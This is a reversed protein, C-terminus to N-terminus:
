RYICPAESCDEITCNYIKLGTTYTSPPTVWDIESYANIGSKDFGKINVDHITFNSRYRTYIARASAYSTTTITMNSISQSGNIVSSSVAYICGDSYSSAAYSYNVITAAKSTGQISVRASLNCRSSENFTGSLLYIIDGPTTANSGAYSLTRWADDPATGSNGNDGTTPFM